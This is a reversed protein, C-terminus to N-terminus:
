KLYKEVGNKCRITKRQISLKQIKENEALRERSNEPHYLHYIIGGYRLRKGKIGKNLLRIVFESDERGWGEMDEDYGNVEIFDKRWYSLNCGRVKSSFINSERYADRFAPIRINRTRKKILGSFFSFSYLEKEMVEELAGATINVRSGYLFVNERIMALHDKVFDKHLVCDGDIQIIYDSSSKAVAKNLVASKHFGRDEQWTHILPLNEQRFKEIVAATEETSGDDAILIEDPISSQEAASKLVLELAKPWNYTSILLAIKM